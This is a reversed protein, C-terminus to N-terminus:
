CISPITRNLTFFANKMVHFHFIKDDSDLIREYSFMENCHEIIIAIGTCLAGHSHM